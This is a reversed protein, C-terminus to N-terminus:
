DEKGDQADENHDHEGHPYADQPHGEPRLGSGTFPRRAHGGLRFGRRELQPLGGIGVGQQCFRRFELGKGFILPFVYRDVFLKVLSHYVDGGFDHGDVPEQLRYGLFATGPRTGNDIGPAIHEGVVVDDLVGILHKNVQGVAALKLPRKDARVLFVIQRHQLKLGWLPRFQPGHGEAIRPVELHALFHHCDAVGKGQFPGQGHADNGPKPPRDPGRRLIDDLVHNLGVGGNIGAIGPGRRSEWPLIIPMLVM